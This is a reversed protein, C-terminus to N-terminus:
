GEKHPRVVFEFYTCFAFVFCFLCFFFSLLADNEYYIYFKKMKM